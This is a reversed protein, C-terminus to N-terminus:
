QHHPGELYPGPPAEQAIPRSTDRPQPEQSRILVDLPAQIGLQVRNGQTRLVEITIVGAIVIRESTKRTLVLM